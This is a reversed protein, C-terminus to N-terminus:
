PEINGELDWCSKNGPVSWCIRQFAVSVSEHVPQGQESRDRVKSFPGGDTEQEPDESSRLEVSTFELEELEIRFTFSSEGSRVLDVLMRPFHVGSAVSVHLRPTFLDIEKTFVVDEFEAGGGGGGAVVFGVKSMLGESLAIAPIWSSPDTYPAEESGTFDEINVFIDLGSQAQAQTLCLTLVLVRLFVQYRM